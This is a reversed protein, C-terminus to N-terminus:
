PCGVYMACDLADGTADNGCDPHPAPPLPAGTAFLASLSYIADSIDHTEDDNSDAADLCPPVDSGPVFLTGLTQVPDAIDFMGDGNADGRIFPDSTAIEYEYTVTYQVTGGAGFGIVGAPTESFAFDVLATLTVEDSGIWPVLGAADDVFVEETDTDFVLAALTPAGAPNPVTSDITAETSALLDAGFFYDVSLQSFIDVSTGSGDTQYGGSTSTLFDLQVSVLQYLGGETDFQNLVVDQTSSGLGGSLSGEQILEEASAVCNISLAVCAVLAAVGVKRRIM